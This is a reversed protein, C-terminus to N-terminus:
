AYFNRVWRHSKLKELTLESLKGKGVAACNALLNKESRMGPIVSTVANFSTIYRLAAEAVNATEDKADAFIKLVREHM